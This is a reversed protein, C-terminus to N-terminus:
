TLERSIVTRPRTVQHEGSPQTQTGCLIRNLVSKAQWAVYPDADEKLTELLDLPCNYNETIKLKVEPVGDKALLWLLELPTNANEAVASRIRWDPHRAL